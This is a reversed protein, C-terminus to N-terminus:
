NCGERAAVEEIVALLEDLSLQRSLRITSIGDKEEFGYDKGERSGTV